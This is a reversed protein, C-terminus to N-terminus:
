PQFMEMSAPIGRSQFNEVLGEVTPGSMVKPVGKEMEEQAVVLRAEVDRFHQAVLAVVVIAITVLLYRVGSIARGTIASM